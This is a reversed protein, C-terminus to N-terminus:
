IFTGDVQCHKRPYFNLARCPFRTHQTLITPCLLEFNGKGVDVLAFKAIKGFPQLVEYSTM